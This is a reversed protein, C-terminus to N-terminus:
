LYGNKRYWEITQRIGERLSAKPDYGLEKQAKSINLVRDTIFLEYSHARPLEFGFRRYVVAALRCFVRFPFEPSRRSSTIVELEQAIMDVLQKLKITEKGAILYSKGEIGATEACLRLGDVVDTIYGMHTHNEGSGIIRFRKRAIAQFLGLWNFSRPGIVSSLRAIVVPLNERKHYSLVMEEGLLKSERYPTNPNPETHEDIPSNKILGYVGVTSGYIFRGVSAKVAARAVNGTGKVNVACHEQRSSRQWSTAAALHYVRECGKVAKEVAAADRIDGYVIEVGLSKLLSLGSSKRALAKVSYGEEILRETLHSGIFGTAGTVLIKMRPARITNKSGVHNKSIGKKM